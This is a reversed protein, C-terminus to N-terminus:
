VLTKIHFRKLIKGILQKEKEPINKGNIEVLDVWFLNKCSVVLDLLEFFVKESLGDKEPYGTSSFVKEDLVDIDLSFYIKGSSIFKELVYKKDEVESSYIIKINKKRAFDIESSDVNESNKRIGLLMIKEVPFGDEVLARLWEEHTPTPMPEMLDPHADFVLLKIEPNKEWIGKVLPYSISHDGGFFFYKNSIKKSFSYIKEFQESVNNKNLELKTGLCFKDFGTEVGNTKGLGNIGPIGKLKM